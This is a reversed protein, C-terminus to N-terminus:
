LPKDALSLGALAQNSWVRTREKLDLKDNRKAGFTNLRRNSYRKFLKEAKRLDSTGNKAKELDDLEQEEEFLKLRQYIQEPSGEGSRFAGRETHRKRVKRKYSDSQTLLDYADHFETVWKKFNAGSFM